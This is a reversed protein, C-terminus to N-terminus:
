GQAKLHIRKQRTPICQNPHLYPSRVTTAFASPRHACKRLTASPVAGVFGVMLPGIKLKGTGGPGGRGTGLGVGGWAPEPNGVQLLSKQVVVHRSQIYHRIGVVVLFLCTLKGTNRSNASGPVPLWPPVAAPYTPLPPPDWLKRSIAYRSLQIRSLRM